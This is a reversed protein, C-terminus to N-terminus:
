QCKLCWQIQQFMHGLQCLLKYPSSIKNSLRRKNEASCSVQLTKPWETFSETNCGLFPHTEELVRLLGIFYQVEKKTKPSSQHSRPKIDPNPLDWPPLCLLGSQYEQRSFRWPCLRTPQLGHPWLSNSVVLCSLVSFAAPRVHCTRMYQQQQHM